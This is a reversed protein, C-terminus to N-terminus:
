HLVHITDYFEEDYYDGKDILSRSIESRGNRIHNITRSFGQKTRQRGSYYRCQVVSDHLVVVFYYGPKSVDGIKRVYTKNFHAVIEAGAVKLDDVTLNPKM